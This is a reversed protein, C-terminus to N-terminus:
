EEASSAGFPDYLSDDTGIYGARDMYGSTSDTTRVLLDRREEAHGDTFAANVTKRVHRFDAYGGTGSSPYYLFATPSLRGPASFYAADALLLCQAPHRVQSATLGRYKETTYDRANRFSLLYNYGFGAYQATWTSRIYMGSTKMSPCEFVKGKSADGEGLAAALFGSSRHNASSDWQNCADDSAPCFRDDFVHTYQIHMLAVQRLSNRCSTSEGSRRASSLAPLLMGALLAIVVIVVLLEVLTFPPRPLPAGPRRGIRRSGDASSRSIAKRPSKSM